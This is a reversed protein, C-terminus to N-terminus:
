NGQGNTEEAGELGLSRLREDLLRGFNELRKPPGTFRYCRYDGGPRPLHDLELAFEEAIADLDMRMDPMTIILTSRNRAMTREKRTSAAAVTLVLPLM